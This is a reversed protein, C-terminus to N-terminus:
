IFIQMKNNYRNSLIGFTCEVIRRARSHRYNYIRQDRPMSGQMRQAPYPTMMTSRLAFAGDGMLFYPMPITDGPFPEPDPINATRQELAQALDSDRFLGADGTMGEAGVDIYILHYDGDAVGLLIISFFKKYNFYLSGSNPPQKIAVHKGDIAGICHHFNWRNTFRDSIALWQERTEPLKISSGYVHIIARLTEPVINM